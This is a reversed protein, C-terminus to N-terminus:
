FDSIESFDARGSEVEAIPDVYKGGTFGGECMEVDLNQAAFHGNKEATYYEASSYEHTWGMQMVVKTRAPAAPAGANCGALVCIGILLMSTFFNRRQLMPRDGANYAENTKSAYLYHYAM